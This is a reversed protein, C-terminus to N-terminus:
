VLEHEVKSKMYSVFETILATQMGRSEDHVGYKLHVYEEIITNVIETVGNEMNIESIVITDNHAYGLVGKQFFNGIIINYPILFGCNGLFNLAQRLKEAQIDNPDIEIYKDARVARYFSPINEEELFGRLLNFIKEQIVKYQGHESQKMNDIHHEGVMKLTKITKIFESSMDGNPSASYSLDNEFIGSKLGSFITKIIEPKDCRFIIRWVQEEVQWYYEVMRDENINIEFLNYDYISNNASNLCKVGRRYINTQNDSKELIEGIGCRYLVKKNSSFYNDFNVIIEELDHKMEIYFCTKGEKPIPNTVVSIEQGSEDIANCYIERLAQWAKWDKGMETTISTKEGNILIRKFEHGRFNALETEIRIEDFGSFIQFTYNNRLFYALAYKNGSGFQGIKTEDGVKTSAGMLTFAEPEILGDNIIRIYKM